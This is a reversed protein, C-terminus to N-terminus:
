VSTVAYDARRCTVADTLWSAREGTATGHSKVQQEGCEYDQPAVEGIVRRSLPGLTDM